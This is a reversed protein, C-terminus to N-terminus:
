RILVLDAVGLAAQPQVAPSLVPLRAYLTFAIRTPIPALIKNPRM